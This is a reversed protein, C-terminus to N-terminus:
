PQKKWIKESAELYLPLAASGYWQYCSAQLLNAKIAPDTELIKQAEAITAINNLIFIGRYNHENKGLPGAIVLKEEKVLRNINEMHGKFCSSIFAKDTTTNAGTQLIVLIYGKMGYEDAGLKTALERDFQPNESIKKSSDASMQRIFQINKIKHIGDSLSVQLSNQSLPKYTIHKPYDHKTNSFTYGDKATTQVFIIEKGENQQLVHAAYILKNGQKRLSLYESVIEQGNKLTYAYGSWTTDNEKGWKEYSEKEQIKWLGVLFDPFKNQAFLTNSLLISLMIIIPRKM